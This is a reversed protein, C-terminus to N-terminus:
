SMPELLNRVNDTLIEEFALVQPEHVRDLEAALGEVSVYRASIVDMDFIVSSHEPNAPQASFLQTVARMDDDLPTELRMQVQCGPRRLVVPLPLEFNFWQDWQLPAQPIEIRDIYRLGIRRIGRLPLIENLEGVRRLVLPKFVDTWGPYPALHNVALLKSTLQILQREDVSRCVLKKGSRQEKTELGQISVRVDVHKQEVMRQDTFGEEQWRKRLAKELREDLPQKADFYIECIVEQLPPKKYRIKSHRPSM